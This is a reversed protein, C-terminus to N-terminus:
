KNENMINEKIEEYDIIHKKTVDNNKEELNTGKIHKVFYRSGYWEIQSM